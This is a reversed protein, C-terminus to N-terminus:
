SGLEYNSLWDEPILPLQPYQHVVIFNSYFLQYCDVNILLDGMGLMSFM